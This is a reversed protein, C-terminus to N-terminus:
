DGVGDRLLTLGGGASEEGMGEGDGDEDEHEGEQRSM